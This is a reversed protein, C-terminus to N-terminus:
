LTTSSPADVLEKRKPSLTLGILIVVGAGVPYSWFFAVNFASMSGVAIVSAAAAFLLVPFSSRRLWALIAFGLVPPLAYGPLIFGLELLGPVDLRDVLLAAGGLALGIIVVSVRAARLTQKETRGPFFPEYVGKVFTHSFASLASDLTTIGAAFFAAIILGSVGVPLERIVFLPFMRDPREALLALDEASPPKLHHFAIVGLTAAAIILTTVHSVMALILAKRADNLSRCCLLRQTSVQDVSNQALQFFTAGFLAVWLTYTQIPDTSIDILRLKAKEDAIQLIEPLGGPVSFVAFGLVLLAGAILVAFQIVDTWIVTTIGGMWTWIVAFVTIIFVATMMEMGTVVSLILATSLLRVSQGLGIAILFMLRSLQAAPRGLRGELFDYPSAINSLYYPKMLTAAMVLNGLIFGVIVQLYRLDGGERYIAAPVAIFTLASTQTAILSISVAWWPLNRGGLFFGSLSNERGRLRHGLWTTALMFFAVVSWDISTFSGPSNM